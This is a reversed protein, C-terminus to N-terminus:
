VRKKKTKVGPKFTTQKLRKRGQRLLIKSGHAPQGRAIAFNLGSADSMSTQEASSKRTQPKKEKYDYHGVNGGKRM